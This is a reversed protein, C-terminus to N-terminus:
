QKESRNQYKMLTLIINLYEKWMDDAYKEAGSEEIITGFCDKSQKSKIMSQMEKLQEFTDANKVMLAYRGIQSSNISNKNPVAHKIANQRMKEIKAERAILTSLVGDTIEEKKSIKNPSIREEFKDAHCFRVQGFGENQKAGILISEPLSMNQEAIFVLTSGAAITRIHPKQMNWKANYGTIVRYRLASYKRKTGKDLEPLEQGISVEIEKKLAQVSIDYGGMGDPILVDSTLFALVIDDKKVEISKRSISNCSGSVLKCNSYQASKSRGFRITENELISCIIEVYEKKGCITGTFYQDSCLSTQTYLDKKGQTTHHYVTEMLPNKFDSNFNCYGSKVPKVTKEGNYRIINFIENEGKIRGLTVPAPFFQNGTEDSIYLNSFRLNNKLFIDDFNEKGYKKVYKGAAFGMVSTGPIYDMTEDSVKGPLMINDKLKITYTYSCEEDQVDCVSTKADSNNEYTFSCEIAGFGRNRKYGINRLAKCIDSFEEVYEMAIDVDAIFKMEEGDVPSFHKVVRTFRLSNEKATDGKVATSAKTYAFAAIIEKVSLSSNCAEKKLEDYDPMVADSIKLSGSENSGSVGFIENIYPSGILGAAERLCGKIRRGGIFPFGYKDYSVDTDIVSSFGDGCAACLDSKLTIELKSMEEQRELGFTTYLPYM